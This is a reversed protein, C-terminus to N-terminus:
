EPQAPLVPAEAPVEVPKQEDNSPSEEPKAPVAPAEAQQESAIDKIEASIEATQGALEAAFNQLCVNISKIFYDTDTIARYTDVNVVYKNWARAIPMPKGTALDRVDVISTPEDYANDDFFIHHISPNATDIFVPKGFEAKEANSNWANFDDQLSVCGRAALCQMIKAYIAAISRTVSIKGESIGSAHFEEESTGAPAKDLSGLVMVTEEPSDSARKLYGTFSRNERYDKGGESGDMKVFVTGNRGNFMPHRGECFRNYEKSLDIIDTGFTRFVIDFDVKQNRLHNLVKFFSPVLYFSAGEYLKILAEAEEKNEESNLENMVYEPLVLAKTMEELEKTFQTGPNGENTFTALFKQRKGRQGKNYENRKDNDPEEEKGQLPISDKIYNFYTGLGESPRKTTLTEHGVKWENEVVSGWAQCAIIKNFVQESSLNQVGDSM